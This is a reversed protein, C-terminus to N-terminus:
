RTALVAVRVHSAISRDRMAAFSASRPYIRLGAPIRQVLDIFRLLEALEEVSARVAVGAPL